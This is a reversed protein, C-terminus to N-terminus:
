QAARTFIEVGGAAGANVYGEFANATEPQKQAWERTEKDEVVIVDPRGLRVDEAFGALDRRRYDELKEKRAPGTEKRMLTVAFSAAWLANPRGVWIGELQRTLPHGFDLQRALALVRPHPPALRSVAARLGPHEEANGIQNIAGLAMPTAALAPVFLFKFLRGERLEQAAPGLALFIWSLLALALAPYAHNMWGKGQIFFSLLFGLSALAGVRAAAPAPFDRAAYLFGTLLAAIFPALSSFLLNSWSERAPAYIDAIVPLAYDRYAPFAILILVGYAACVAAAALIEPGLLPRLSRARWAIALAPLAAALAFYPKFCAALGAGLGAAIRLGRPPEAGEQMVAFLALVPAMALLALHEREAFAIEPAVLFLFLASNLLAAWDDRARPAGLRLIFASLALAAGAFVFVLTAVVPEVAVHLARAIHVAPVLSLFALPPNPDTVDVYPIQGDVYKEAFTIFWSVDCDIHGAIQQAIALLVLALALSPSALFQALRAEHSGSPERDLLAAPGRAKLSANEMDRALNDRAMNM